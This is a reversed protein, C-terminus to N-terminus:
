GAARRQGREIQELLDAIRRHEVPTATIVLLNDGLVTGTVNLAIRLTELLADATQGLVGPPAVLDGVFYVRTLIRDNAADRTMIKLTEDEIVYELNLQDVLILNLVSELSLNKAKLTVPLDAIPTDSEVLQISIAHRESLWEVVDRLEEDEFDIQVSSGLAEAIREEAPKISHMGRQVPPPSPVADVSLKFGAVAPSLQLTPDAHGPAISGPAVEIAASPGPGEGREEDPAFQIVSAGDGGGSEAFQAIV